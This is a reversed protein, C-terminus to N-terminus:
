VLKKLPQKPKSKPSPPKNFQDEDSDNDDFFKINHNTKTSPPNNYKNYIEDAKQRYEEVKRM